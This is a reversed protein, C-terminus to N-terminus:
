NPKHFLFHFLNLVEHFLHDSALQRRGMNLEHDLILLLTRECVLLDIDERNCKVQLFLKECADVALSVSTEEKGLIYRTKLGVKNAIFDSATGTVDSIDNNSHKILPLAFTFFDISM